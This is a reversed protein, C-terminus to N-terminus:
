GYREKWGKLDVVDLGREGAYRVVRERLLHYDETVLVGGVELGTSLVIADSAYLGFEMVLEIGRWKVRSLPVAKWVYHDEMMEMVMIAKKMKERPYSAKQLARIVELPLIEPIFTIVEMNLVKSKLLLAEREGKEGAKFWKVVVSSDLVLPTSM